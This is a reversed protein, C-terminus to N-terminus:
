RLDGPVYARAWLAVQLLLAAANVRPKQCWLDGILDM